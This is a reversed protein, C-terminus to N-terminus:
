LLGSVHHFTAYVLVICRGPRLAPRSGQNLLLHVARRVRTIPLWMGDEIRFAPAGFAALPHGGAAMSRLAMRSYVETSMGQATIYKWSEGARARRAETLMGEAGSHSEPQCLRTKRFM